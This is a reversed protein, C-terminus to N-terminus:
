DRRARRNGRFYHRTLPAPSPPSLRTSVVLDPGNLQPIRERRSSKYVSRNTYFLRRVNSVGVGNHPLEDYVLPLLQGMAQTDGATEKGLIAADCSGEALDQLSHFGGRGFTQSIR